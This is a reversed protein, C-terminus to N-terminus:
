VNINLHNNLAQLAQKRREPFLPFFFFQIHHLQALHCLCVQLSYVCGCMAKPLESSLCAVAVKEICAFLMWKM